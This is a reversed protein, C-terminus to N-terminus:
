WDLGRRRPGGFSYTWQAGVTFYKQLGKGPNAHTVFARLRNTPSFHYSGFLEHFSARDEVPMDSRQWLSLLAGASWHQDFGYEYMGWGGLSDESVIPGAPSRFEADKLWLEFTVAHFSEEGLEQTFTVDFDFLSRALEDRTTIDDANGPMGDPDVLGFAIENPAVFTSAGLSLASSEWNQDWQLRFTGAWNEVGTRGFATIGDPELLGNQPADVDQGEADGAFGISWRLQDSEGLEYSRHLEIGTTVLNGGLYDRRVGDMNPSPLENVYVRNWAGIDAFYKGGRLKLGLPLEDVWAAAERLILESGDGGDAFDVTAYVRGFDTVESALHMQLSRLRLVNFRDPQDDAETWEMLGDVLFGIDVVDYWPVEEPEQVAGDAAQAERWSEDPNQAAAPTAFAPMALSLLLPFSRLM